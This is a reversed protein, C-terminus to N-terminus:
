MFFAVVTHVFCGAFSIHLAMYLMCLGIQESSM